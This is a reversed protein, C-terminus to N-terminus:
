ALAQLLFLCGSAVGVAFAAAIWAAHWRALGVFEIALIRVGGALHVALAAVLLAESVKVWPQETWAIFGAFREARLALGLSLFHLPLFAALALGSLRHVLAAVFGAQVRTSRLLGIHSM